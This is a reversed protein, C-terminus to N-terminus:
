RMEEPMSEGPSPGKTTPELTLVYDKIHGNIELSFGSTTPDSYKPAIGFRPPATQSQEPPVQRPDPPTVSVKYEGTPLGDGQSEFTVDRFKGETGTVVAIGGRLGDATTFHVLTGQYAPKGDTFVVKGDVQYKPQGCGCLLALFACGIAVRLFKM